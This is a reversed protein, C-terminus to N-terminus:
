NRDYFSRIKRALEDMNRVPEGWDTCEETTRTFVKKQLKKAIALEMLTGSSMGTCVIFDGALIVLFNRMSGLGTPLAIDTYANAMHEDSEPLIGITIGNAYKAGKFVAEMSGSKGGSIVAIGMTALLKGTNYAFSYVDKKCSSPGIVSAKKM